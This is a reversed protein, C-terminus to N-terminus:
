NVVDCCNPVIKDMIVLINIAHMPEGAFLM